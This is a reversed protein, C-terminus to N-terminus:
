AVASLTNAGQAPTTLGSSVVTLEVRLMRSFKLSKEISKESKEPEKIPVASAALTAAVFLPPQAGRPALNDASGINSSSIDV